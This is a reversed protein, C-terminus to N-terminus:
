RQKPLLNTRQTPRLKAVGAKSYCKLLLLLVMLVNPVAGFVFIPVLDFVLIVVTVVFPLLVLVILVVFVVIIFIVPM